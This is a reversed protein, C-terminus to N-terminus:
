DLSDWEDQFLLALTVEGTFGGEGPQQKSVLCHKRQLEAFMCGRGTLRKFALPAAKKMEANKSKPLSRLLPRANLDRPLVLSPTQSTRYSARAAM